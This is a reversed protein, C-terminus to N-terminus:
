SMKQRNALADALMEKHAFELVMGSALGRALRSLQVGLGGLQETVFLSTGDGELTPNTAMIVERVGGSRVRRVLADITLQDPGIGELPAIRGGLVHYVGSYTAAKEIAIVDRPQEVVCIVSQDRRPDRCIDCEDSEALNYCTKCRGVRQKVAEIARALSIAEDPTSRLVHDALREASKRGIGPLRAFEDILRTVTETYVAM